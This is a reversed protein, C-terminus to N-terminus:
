DKIRELPLKAPGELVSGNVAFRSGHCSCDFTNEVENYEIPCSLHTCHAKFARVVGNHDKYVAQVKGNVRLIAGKGPAVDDYSGVSIVANGVTYEKIVHGTQIFFDKASAGPTFRCPLFPKKLDNNVMSSGTISDTIMMAAATANTMGWKAYGTAVYVSDAKKSVKGIYPLGDLTVCDQASWGYGPIPDAHQFDSSILRTLSDYANKDDDEQGTKHGYGGLLLQSDGEGLYTRISNVPHGANIYIGPVKLDKANTSIIYSRERHLKIFFMGPFDIVPYNTAIVVSDAKLDGRECQVVCPNGQQLGMVKTFEYLKGDYDDLVNLLAYLYKIPHFQAQSPMEIGCRIDFPLGVDSIINGQIGLDDYAKKEKEIYKIEEENCTYVFSSLKKFDCDIHYEEILSEIQELGAQNIAYYASARDKSLEHYKLAHQTTIKATTYGTTGTGARDADVVVVKVGTKALLVATTIGTIGAGIVVIDCQENGSLPTYEEPQNATEMWYSAKKM